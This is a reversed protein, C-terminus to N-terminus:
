GYNRPASPAARAEYLWEAVQDLDDEYLHGYLDLTLVASKHGLMRQVSKISAGSAIALSAATHRLEHPTLNLGADRAARDFCQRRWNGIRLVSGAPSTFVMDDAAKGALQQALDDRLFRPVSVSRHAHTKTSGFLARGSVETM